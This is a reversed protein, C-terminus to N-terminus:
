RKRLRRFLGRFINVVLILQALTFSIIIVAVIENARNLENFNGWPSIDLYKEPYGFLPLSIFLGLALLTLVVHIWTLLSSLPLNRTLMYIAWLIFALIALALNFEFHAIVFYTDHVHIDLTGKSSLFSSILLSLAALLLLHYPKYISMFMFIYFWGYNTYNMNNWERSGELKADVVSTEEHAAEVELGDVPGLYRRCFV